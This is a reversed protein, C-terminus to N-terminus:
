EATSESRSEAPSADTPQAKTSTSTTSDRRRDRRSWAIVPREVWAYTAAGLPISIALVCLLRWGLGIPGDPFTIDRDLIVIVPLHWLYIGYSWRGIAVFWRTSLLRTLPATTPALVVGALLIVAVTTACFSRVQHEAFTVPDFGPPGGVSSTGILAVTLALVPLAWRDATFRRIRGLSVLGSREGEVFHSVLAGGAFCFLFAPLWFSYTFYQVKDEAHVWWRWAASIPLSLCLMTTTLGFGRRPSVRRALLATVGGMLPLAVYWSLRTGLSWTQFLSLRLDDPVYIWTLTAARLWEGLGDPRDTPYILAVAM